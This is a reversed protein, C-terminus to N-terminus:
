AGCWYTISILIKLIHYISHKVRQKGHFTLIEKTNCMNICTYKKLLSEVIHIHNSVYVEFIFIGLDIEKFKVM